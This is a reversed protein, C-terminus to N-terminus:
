DGREFEMNAWIKALKWMGYFNVIPIILILWKVFTGSPTKGFKMRKEEM